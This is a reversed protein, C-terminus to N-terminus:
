KENMDGVFDAANYVFIQFIIKNETCNQLNKELVRCNM